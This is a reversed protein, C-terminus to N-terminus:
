QSVSRQSATGLAKMTRGKRERRSKVDSQGGRAARWGSPLREEDLHFMNQDGLYVQTRHGQGMSSWSALAEEM